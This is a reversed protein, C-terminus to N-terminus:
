GTGLTSSIELGAQHLQLVHKVISLGLGTGGSHRARSNSVRYFRETIRELHQPPIGHGTDTVSLTAGGEQNHQWAITIRGGDPTYRVANTVLNSFASHLERASGHLDVGALNDVEIQHRGQSLAVAERRLTSLINTVRVREEQLPQGSELRSLTLLDEVLRAMRTSQTRMEDLAPALHPSEEPDLLDLYGHLVTLPTRLEHSVNAVFDRRMQELRMMQSIDRVILLQEGDGRYRVMRLGLRRDSGSGSDNGVAASIDTLPESVGQRLWALAAPSWRLLDTLALGADRPWHLGLHRAAPQNFWVVRQDAALHVIGDPLAEAAERFARVLILLRQQRRRYNNSRRRLLSYIEHWIGCREHPPTQQQSGLWTQLRHLKFLTHALIGALALALLLAAQGIVAGLVLAAGCIAALRWFFTHWPNSM